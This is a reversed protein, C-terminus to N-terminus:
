ISWRPNIGRMPLIIRKEVPDLGATPGMWAREEPTSLDPRSVPWESGDLASSLFAHLYVELGGCKNMAHHKILCIIRRCPM